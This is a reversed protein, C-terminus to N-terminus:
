QWVKCLVYLKQEREGVLFYAKAISATQELDCLHTAMYCDWGSLGEGQANEKVQGPDSCGGAELGDM